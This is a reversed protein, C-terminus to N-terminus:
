RRRRRRKRRRRRMPCNTYFPGPYQPEAVEAGESVVRQTVKPLDWGGRAETEGMSPYAAPPPRYNETLSGQPHSGHNTVFALMARTQLTPAQITM